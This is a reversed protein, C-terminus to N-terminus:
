LFVPEFRGHGDVFDVEAGPTAYGFAVVAPEGIALKAILKNGVDLIKAVGVDLQKGDHFVREVTGPAVLRNAVESGGAAVASGSLEHLKDIAAMVGADANEQVPSGRMERAVGEAERLEVARVEVLVGVRALARM